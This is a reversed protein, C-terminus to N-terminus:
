GTSLRIYHRKWYGTSLYEKRIEYNRGLHFSIRYAPKSNVGSASLKESKHLSPTFSLFRWPDENPIQEEKDQTTNSAVPSRFHVSTVLIVVESFSALCINCLSFMFCYSNKVIKKLNKKKQSTQNSSSDPSHFLRPSKWFDQNSPSIYDGTSHFRTSNQTQHKADGCALLRQDLETLKKLVLWFASIYCFIKDSKNFIHVFIIALAPFRRWNAHDIIRGNRGFSSRGMISQKVGNNNM